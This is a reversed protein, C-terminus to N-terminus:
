WVAKLGVMWAVWLVVKLAVWKEVSWPNIPIYDGGNYNPPLAARLTTALHGSQDTM